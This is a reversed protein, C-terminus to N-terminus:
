GKVARRERDPLQRGGAEAGTLRLHGASSDHLCRKRTTLKPQSSCKACRSICRQLRCRAASGNACRCRCRAVRRSSDLFRCNPTEAATRPPAAEIQIFSAAGRWSVSVPLITCWFSLHCRVRVGRKELWAQSREGIHGPKDAILRDRSTVLTVKKGLPMHTVVEGALEVGVIGGGIILVSLAALLRKHEAQTDPM